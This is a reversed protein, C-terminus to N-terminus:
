LTQELVATDGLLRLRLVVSVLHHALRPPVFIENELIFAHRNPKQMDLFIMRSRHM